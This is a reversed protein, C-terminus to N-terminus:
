IHASRIRSREGVRSYVVHLVILCSTDLYQVPPYRESDIRVSLLLFCYLQPPLNLSFVRLFFVPM